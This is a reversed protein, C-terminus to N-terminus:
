FFNNIPQLSKGVNKMSEYFVSVSRQNEVKENIKHKEHKWPLFVSFSNAM